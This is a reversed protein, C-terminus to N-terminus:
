ASRFIDSASNIEEESRSVEDRGTLERARKNTQAVAAIPVKLATTRSRAKTSSVAREYDRVASTITGTAHV